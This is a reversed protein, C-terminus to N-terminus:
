EIPWGRMLDRLQRPLKGMLTRVHKVQQPLKREAEQLLQQQASAARQAEAVIASAQPLSKAAKEIAKLLGDPISPIAGSPLETM